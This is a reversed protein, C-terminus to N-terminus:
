KYIKSELRMTECSTRLRDLSSDMFKEWTLYQVKEDKNKEMHREYITYSATQTGAWALSIADAAEQPNIHLDKLTNMIVLAASRAHESM